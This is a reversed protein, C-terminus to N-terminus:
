AKESAAAHQYLFVSGVAGLVLLVAGIALPVVGVGGALLLPLGILGACLGPALMLAVVLWIKWWAVPKQGAVKGTQGNVLVQYVKSEFRYAAVYVPLLVYRWVEDAFDATMSFNRVHHSPIDQRCADKARERMAAKGTEWAQPLPVDYGHAQWGALFDPAYAVLSALDFPQLGDLLRQSLRAAGPVLLDDIHLGVRGDQWRWDIVTRTRWTKDGADYYREQREYGVEARWDAAIAADFTWYPLYIGSFQEILASRSLEDPHFWGRGLWERARAKIGDPQMKFPILFRPRLRDDAAERMTVQNSACFPCTVTLAGAALTIDAGCANCHLEKRAVGWGQAGRRLAELTFEDEAAAQGVAQAQVEATYGCHECAVGGAAVDYRTTAGCNPCQFTQPAQPAEVQPRPAYVSVGELASEVPIFDPPPPWAPSPFANM